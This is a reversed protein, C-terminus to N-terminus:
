LRKQAVCKEALLAGLEFQRSYCKRWHPNMRQLLMAEAAGYAYVAERGTESLMNDGLQQLTKNKLAEAAAKLDKRGSLAGVEIETWRAIGEQWLQFEFYRWDKPSVTAAFERRAELYIKSKATFSDFNANIADHLATAAKNYAANAAADNYPFPYNLMWMGTEDGGSLGLADVRQYYDPIEGQWQHFHEHFITLTWDALSKGTTEPTGMVIVSPPGFVPMAALFTPQRWSKPGESQTCNLTTEIKAASFGDPTRSDCLLIEKDKTVLLLGMPANGYGLWLSNGNQRVIKRAVKLGSAVDPSILAPTETNNPQAPTSLTAAFALILIISSVIPRM